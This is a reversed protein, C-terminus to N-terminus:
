SLIKDITKVLHDVEHILAVPREQKLVDESFMGWTVAINFAGAARSAQMDFPSDGVYVVKTMPMELRNASYIVPYPDPKAAEVDDAAIIDDFYGIVGAQSLHRVAAEHRKSTVVSLKFGAQKLQELAEIMGPFAQIPEKEFESQCDLYTSFAKEPDAPCYEELQDKLPIGVQSMLKEDSYNNGFTENVTFRMSKLILDYTDLLTGDLDFQILGPCGEQKHHSLGTHTRRNLSVM